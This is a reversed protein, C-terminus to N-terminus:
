GLRPGGSDAVHAVERAADSARAKCRAAVTRTRRVRRSQAEALEGLLARAEAIASDRESTDHQEDHAENRDKEMQELLTKAAAIRTAGSEHGFMLTMLVRRVDREITQLKKHSVSRRQTSTTNENDDTIPKIDGNKKNNKSKDIEKDCAAKDTNNKHKPKKSKAKKL